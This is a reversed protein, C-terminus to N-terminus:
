FRINIFFFQKHDVIQPIGGSACIHFVVMSNDETERATEYKINICSVDNKATNRM